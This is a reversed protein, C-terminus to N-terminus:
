NALASVGGELAERIAVLQEHSLETFRLQRRPTDDMGESRGLRGPLDRVVDVQRGLQGGFREARRQDALEINKRRLEETLALEAKLAAIREDFASNQAFDEDTILGLGGNDFLSARFEKKQQKLEDIQRRIGESRRGADANFGFLQLLRDRQRGQPLGLETEAQNIRTQIERVRDVTRQRGRDAEEMQAEWRERENTRVLEIRTRQLQVLLASRQADGDREAQNIQQRYGLRIAEARADASDLELDVRARALELELAEIQTARELAEEQQAQRLRAASAARAAGLAQELDQDNRRLLQLRRGALAQQTTGFAEEDILGEALEGRLTRMEDTFAKQVSGAVDQAKRILDQQGFLEEARILDSGELGTLAQRRQQGRTADVLGTDRVQQAARAMAKLRVEARQAEEGLKKADSLFNPFGLAGSIESITIGIGRWLHGVLPIRSIFRNIGVVADTFNLNILADFARRALDPIGRILRIFRGAETIVLIPWFLRSLAGGTARTAKTAQQTLGLFRKIRDINRGILFGTGFNFVGGGGGGGGGSASGREAAQVRIFAESTRQEAAAIERDYDDLKAHIEVFAEGFKVADGPM